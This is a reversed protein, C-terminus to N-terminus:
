GGETVRLTWAVRGRVENAKVVILYDGAPLKEFELVADSASPEPLACQLPPDATGCGPYLMLVPRTVNGLAEIRVPMEEELHLRAIQTSPNLRYYDSWKDLPCDEHVRWFPLISPPQGGSLNEEFSLEEGVEIDTAADCLSQRFPALAECIGGETCFSGPKCRTLVEDPDCSGGVEAVPLPLIPRVLPETRLAGVDVVSVEAETATVFGPWSHFFGVSRHLESSSAAHGSIFALAAHGGPDVIDPHGVLQEGKADRFRGGISHLNGDPDEADVGVVLEENRLGGRYVVADSITPPHNPECINAEMCLLGPGCRNRDPDVGIGACIEGEEKFPFHGTAIAFWWVPISAEHSDVILYIPVGGEVEVKTLIGARHPVCLGTLESEPDACDTRAILVPNGKPDVVANQFGVFLMGDEPPTYRFVLQDGATNCSGPPTLAPHGFFNTEPIEILGGGEASPTAVETWEIPADCTGQLTCSSSCPALKGNRMGLDCEEGEDVVGDGCRPEIKKGGEGGEGGAGGEGGVGAEGGAGGPNGGEGGIGTHGGGGDIKPRPPDDGCGISLLVLLLAAVATQLALRDISTIAFQSM